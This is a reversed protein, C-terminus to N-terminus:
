CRFKAVSPKEEQRRRRRGEKIWPLFFREFRRRVNKGNGRVDDWM